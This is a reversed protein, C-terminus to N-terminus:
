RGGVASSLMKEARERAIREDELEQQAARLAAATKQATQRAELAESRPQEGEAQLERTKEEEEELKTTAEYYNDQLEGLEDDKANQTAELEDKAQILKLIETEQARSQAELAAVQWRAWPEAWPARM